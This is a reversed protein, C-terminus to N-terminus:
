AVQDLTAARVRYVAADPVELPGTSSIFAQGYGGLAQLFALRRESDLESLVDDLLLIPADGSRAELFGFEAVKVALVATRQQGQSGYAALAEGGLTFRLDDRHPGCLAARRSREAAGLLQLQARFASQVGADTPLEFAINPVYALGLWGDSAGAFSRYATRAREELEVTFARRALMLRGGTEVLRENYVALLAEDLPAADRLLAGKQTLAREYAALAAYYPASDQALAANLLARRLSPPGTVLQLHGPVFSVVRMRGLYGAYRAAHGNVTYTKRVSRSGLTIRCGLRVRASSATQRAEGFITAVAASQRVVEGSASTRFSKGTGLLAIAELLNSKGQANAGVIVNLRASPMWDLSEYNRVESLILRELIM